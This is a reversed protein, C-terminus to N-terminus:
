RVKMVKNQIWIRRKGYQVWRREIVISNPSAMCGALITFMIDKALNRNKVMRM